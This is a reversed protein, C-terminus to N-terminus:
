ERTVCEGCPISGDSPGVCGGSPEQAERLACQARRMDVSPICAKPSISFPGSWFVCLWSRPAALRASRLHEYVRRLECLSAQAETEADTGSLACADREVSLSASRPPYTM